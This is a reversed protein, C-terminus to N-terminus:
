SGGTGEAGTEDPTGEGVLAAGDDSLRYGSPSPPLKKLWVLTQLAGIYQQQIANMLEQLRRQYGALFEREEATLEYRIESM